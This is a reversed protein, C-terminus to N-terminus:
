MKSLCSITSLCKFLQYLYLIIHAHPFINSKRVELYFQLANFYIYHLCLEIFFLWMLYRLMNLLVDYLRIKFPSHYQFSKMFDKYLIIPGLFLLPLYFSYGLINIIEYKLVTSKFKVYPLKENDVENQISDLSYSICRLQIWSVAVIVINFNENNFKTLMLFNYNKMEYLKKIYNIMLSCILSCIWISKATGKHILVCWYIVPQAAMLILAVWGFDYLVFLFSITCYWIQMYIHKSKRLLESVVAHILLWPLFTIALNKWYSWEYDSIDKHRNIFNWGPSINESIINPDVDPFFSM